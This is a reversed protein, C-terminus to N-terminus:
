TRVDVLPSHTRIPKEEEPLSDRVQLIDVNLGVNELSAHLEDLHPSVWEKTEKDGYFLVSIDTGQLNLDARIPPSDEMDFRLQVQWKSLSPNDSDDESAQRHSIRLQLNETKQQWLVPIDTVLVRVREGETDQVQQTISSLQNVLVRSIAQQTTETIRQGSNQPLNTPTTSLKNQLQLLLAKADQKIGQSDSKAIKNELQTGSDLLQQKLQGADTQQPSSLSRGLLLQLLGNIIPQSRSLQQNLSPEQLLNLLQSIPQQIPLNERLAQDAALRAPAPLQVNVLGNKDLTIKLETGAPIPRPTLIEVATGKVNITTIYSQTAAQSQNTTNPSITAASNSSTKTTSQPTNQTNNTSPQTAPAEARSQIVKATSTEGLQLMPLRQAASENGKAATANPTNTATSIILQNSSDRSLTIQSGVKLPTPTVIDLLKGEVNIKAIYAQSTATAATNASSNPTQTSGQSPAKQTTNQVTAQVKPQATNQVSTQNPAQQATTNTTASGRTQPKAYTLTNTPQKNGTDSTTTNKTATNTAESSQRVQSTTTQPQATSQRPPQPTVNVVTATQIQGIRLLADLRGQSLEASLRQINGSSLQELM